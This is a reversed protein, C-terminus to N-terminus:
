RWNDLRCGMLGNCDPEPCYGVGNEDVPFCRSSTLKEHDKYDPVGDGDTDMAQGHSDVEVRQAELVNVPVKEVAKPAAAVAVASAKEKVKCGFCLVCLVLLYLISKSM